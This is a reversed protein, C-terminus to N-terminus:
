EENAHLGGVDVHSQHHVLVAAGVAEHRDLIEHLLDDALDLVLVVLGFGGIDHLIGLEPQDRGRARRHSLELTVQADFEELGLLLGFDIRQAAKHEGQEPPHRRAALQDAMGRPELELHEIGIRPADLLQSDMARARAGPLLIGAGGCLSSKAAALWGLGNAGMAESGMGTGTEMPERASRRRLREPQRRRAAASAAPPAETSAIAGKKAQGTRHTVSGTSTHSRSPANNGRSAGPPLAARADQRAM